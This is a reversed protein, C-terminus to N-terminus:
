YLRGDSGKGIQMTDIGEQSPMDEKRVINYNQGLFSTM